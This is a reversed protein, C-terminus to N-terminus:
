RGRLARLRQHMQAIQRNSLRRRGSAAQEIERAAARRAQAGRGGQAATRRAQTRLGTHAAASGARRGGPGAARSQARGARNGSGFSALVIGGGEQATLVNENM